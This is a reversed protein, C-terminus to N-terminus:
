SRATSKRRSKTGGRSRRKTSRLSERLRPSISELAAIAINLKNRQAKLQILIRAIDVPDGRERAIKQSVCRHQAPGKTKNWKGFLFITLIKQGCLAASPRAKSSVHI